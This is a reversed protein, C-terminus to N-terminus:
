QVRHGVKMRLRDALVVSSVAERQTDLLDTLGIVGDGCRVDITEDSINEIVGPQLPRPDMTQLSTNQLPIVKRPHFSQGDFSVTPYALTNELPRFDLGRAFREIRQSSWAFDIRGDDPTDKFSYYSAQSHDQRQAKIQGCLFPDLIEDLLAVGAQFCKRALTFPTEDGAVSFMKRGIVDGTDIGEDVWHWAVGHENEGNIIVWSYINVGRYKPLPGNHYNVTGDKPIALLPAKLIRMNYASFLLDPQAQQVADLTENSNIKETELYAIGHQGCYREVLGSLTQIKPDSIVLRIDAEDSRRMVNLCDVVFRANGIVVIKKM